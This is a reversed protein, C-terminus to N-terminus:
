TWNRKAIVKHVIKRILKAIQTRSCAVFIWSNKQENIERDEKALARIGTELDDLSIDVLIGIESDRVTSAIEPLDSALVPLGAQMYEFLKNPM